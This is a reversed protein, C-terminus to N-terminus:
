ASSLALRPAAPVQLASEFLSALLVPPSVAYGQAYDVGLDVLVPFMAEDHVFEAISSMGLGRAVECMSKVLGRDSDNQMLERVFSGDIKLYDFPMERLYSYNAYGTGFDDLATRCGRERVQSLFQRTQTPDLVALTETVEFIIKTPEVGSSELIDQIEKLSDPDSLTQGSLNVSLSHLGEPLEHRTLWGCVERLVWHDVQTILKQREAERLFIAPSVYSGEDSRLRLLVEGHGPLGDRLPRMPQVFPVLRNEGMVRSVARMWDESQALLYSSVRIQQTGEEWAAICAQEAFRLIDEGVPADPCCGIAFRLDGLVEQSGSVLAHAEQALTEGAEPSALVFRSDAVRAIVLGPRGLGRLMRSIDALAADGAQQGNAYRGALNPFDIVTAQWREESSADASATLSQILGRRNLFGTEQDRLRSLLQDEYAWSEINLDMLPPLKNFPTHGFREVRERTLHGILEAKEMRFSRQGAADVFGFWGYPLSTWALQLPYPWDSKDAFRVWTGLALDVTDNTQLAPAAAGRTANAWSMATEAMAPDSLKVIWPPDARGQEAVSFFNQLERSVVQRVQKVRDDQLPAQSFDGLVSQADLWVQTGPNHRLAIMALVHRWPGDCFAAAERPLQKGSLARSLTEDSRQRARLMRHWGEMELQLELVREQRRILAGAGLKDLEALWRQTEGPQQLLGRGAAEAWQRLQEAEKPATGAAVIESARNLLIRLPDDPNSILQQSEAVSKMVVPSLANLLGAQGPSAAVPLKQVLSAARVGKLTLEEARVPAASAWRALTQPTAAPAAGSSGAVNYRDFSELAGLLQALMHHPSKEVKADAEAEHPAHNAAEGGHWGGAAFGAHGGGGHHEVPQRSQYEGRYYSGPAHRSLPQFGPTTLTQKALPELRNALAWLNSQMDPVVQELLVRLLGRRIGASIDLDSLGELIFFALNHLTYPNGDRTLRRGFLHSLHAELFGLATDQADIEAKYRGLETVLIDYDQQDILTLRHLDEGGQLYANVKRALGELLQYQAEDPVTEEQVVPPPPAVPTAVPSANFLVGLDDTRSSKSQADRINGGKLQAFMDAIPVQLWDLSAQVMADRDYLSFDTGGVPDAMSAM